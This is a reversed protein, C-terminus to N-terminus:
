FVEAGLRRRQSCVRPQCRASVFPDFTPPALAVGAAFFHLTGLSVSTIGGTALANVDDIFSAAAASASAVFTASLARASALANAGIGPIYTRPKGGRYSSLIGWSIVAAANATLGGGSEAGTHDATVSVQEDGAGSYYRV